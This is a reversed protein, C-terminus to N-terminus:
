RYCKENCYYIGKGTKMDNQYEGEYINGDPWEYKGNGNM